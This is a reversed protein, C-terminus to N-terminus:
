AILGSPGVARPIAVWPIRDGAIQHAGVADPGEKKIEEDMTTEM